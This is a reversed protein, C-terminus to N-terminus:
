CYQIFIIDPPLEPTLIKQGGRRKRIYEEVATFVLSCVTKGEQLGLNRARQSLDKPLTCNYHELAKELQRREDSQSVPKPKAPSQSLTPKPPLKPLKKM